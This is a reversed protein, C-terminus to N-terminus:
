LDKAEIFIGDKKFINAEKQKLINAQLLIYFYKSLFSYESRNKNM